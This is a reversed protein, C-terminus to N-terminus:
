SKFHENMAQVYDAIALEPEEIEPHWMKEWEFSYYGDYGGKYLADVAEFIPVDGQRLRVYDIKDGAVKANKIHTHRIYKKLKEYALTPSEKTKAWMNTVDWIMGVNKQEALSMVKEVDAIYVLDGHSEIVVSVKSGNAHNGLELLGKAILDM